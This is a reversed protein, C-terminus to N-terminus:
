DEVFTGERYSNHEELLRIHSRATTKNWLGAIKGESNM